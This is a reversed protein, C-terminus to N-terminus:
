IEHCVRANSEVSHDVILVQLLAPSAAAMKPRFVRSANEVSVDYGDSLLPTKDAELLRCFLASCASSILRKRLPVQRILSGAPLRRGWRLPEITLYPITPLGRLTGLLDRRILTGVRYGQRLQDCGM